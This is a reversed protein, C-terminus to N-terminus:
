SDDTFKKLRPAFFTGLIVLIACGAFFHDNAFLLGVIVLVILIGLAIGAVWDGIEEEDM